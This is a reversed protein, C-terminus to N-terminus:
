RRSILLGLLLGVVGVTTAVRWPNDHMYHDAVRAAQKGQKFVSEPTGYLLARTTRLSDVAQARLETAQEGTASAARDLLREAEGLASKLGEFL